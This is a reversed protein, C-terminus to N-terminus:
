NANSVEWGNALRAQAIAADGSYTALYAPMNELSDEAEVDVHVRKIITKHSNERKLYINYLYVEKVKTENTKKTMAM